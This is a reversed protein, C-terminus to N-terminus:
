QVSPHVPLSHWDFLEPNPASEGDIIVPVRHAHAVLQAERIMMELNRYEIRWVGPRLSRLLGRAQLRARSLFVTGRSVAGNTARAIAKASLEVTEKHADYHDYLTWLLAADTFRRELAFFMLMFAESLYGGAHSPWKLNLRRTLGVATLRSAEELARRRHEDIADRAVQTLSDMRSAIEANIRPESLAAEMANFAQIYREKWAAAKAGTFGMALFAFGDRTIRYAPSKIPAGGSPNEREVVTQAFNRLRYEESCELNRIAKLVDRHQKGFHEAIALSTTTVNGGVISIRPKLENQM